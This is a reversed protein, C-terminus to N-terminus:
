KKLGVEDNKGRILGVIINIIFLLQGGIFLLILILTVSSLTKFIELDRNGLTTHRIAILIIGIFSLPTVISHITSFTPILKYDRLMWYIVGSIGLITTCALAIHLSSFVFYTDHLQLDFAGNKGLFPLVFILPISYGLITYAKPLFKM